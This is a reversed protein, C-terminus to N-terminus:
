SHHDDIQHENLRIIIMMMKGVSAQVVHERMLIRSLRDPGSRTGAQCRGGVTAARDPSVLEDQTGSCSLPLPM